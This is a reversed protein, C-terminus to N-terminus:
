NDDLKRKKTDNHVKLTFILVLISIVISIAPLILEKDISM